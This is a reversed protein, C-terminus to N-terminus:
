QQEKQKLRTIFIKLIEIEEKSFNDEKEDGLLHGLKDKLYIRIDAEIAEFISGKTKIIKSSLIKNIANAHELRTIPDVTEQVAREDTPRSDTESVPTDNKRKTETVEEQKDVSDESSVDNSEEETEGILDKWDDLQRPVFNHQHALRNFLIGAQQFQHRTIPEDNEVCRNWHAERNSDIMLVRQIDNKSEYEGLIEFDEESLMSDRGYIQPWILEGYVSRDFIVDKGDMNMYLDMMEDLYSPGTYGEKSYKKSPADMHHTVYGKKEFAKAVTSKGTRDLGELIIWAMRKEM